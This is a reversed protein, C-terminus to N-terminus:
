SACFSPSIDPQLRRSCALGGGTFVAMAARALVLHRLGHRRRGAHGPRVSHGESRLDRVRLDMGCAGRPQAASLAVDSVHRRARRGHRRLLALAGIQGMFQVLIRTTILADIVLGLSVFSCAISVAGVVLLSVYPFGQTPHLRGFAKFFYGDNAAAYPIRSYGLLLAFVSGFATWLIAATFLTAATRGYIKEM